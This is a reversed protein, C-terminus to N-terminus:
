LGLQRVTIPLVREEYLMRAFVAARPGHQPDGGDNLRQSDHILGLLFGVVADAGVVRPALQLAAYAVGRWHAEGHLISRRHTARGLVAQLLAPFNPLPDSM